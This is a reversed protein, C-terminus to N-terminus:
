LPQSNLSPFPDNGHQSSLEFSFTLQKQEDILRATFEAHTLTHTHTHTHTYGCFAKHAQAHTYTTLGCTRSPILSCCPLPPSLSVRSFGWHACQRSTESEM